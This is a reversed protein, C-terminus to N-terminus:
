GVFWASHSTLAEALNLETQLYLTYVGKGYLKRARSLNFQIQFKDSTQVWNKATITLGKPSIYGPPVVMGVFTGITYSGNYPQKELQVSTLNTPAEDFFISLLRISFGTDTFTGEMVVDNNGSVNLTTWEIYDNEFDEVFYVNNTDYALGISVKNHAPNLINDRHGWNCMSDNYMMQWELTRLTEKVDFVGNSYYWAVNETVSGRGGDETYRMYPKYGRTDWHSFFNQKLMNEAHKQGSSVESLSVNALNNQMRDGNILTLAYEILEEHTYSESLNSKFLEQFLLSISQTNVLVVGLFIVILCAATLTKFSAQARPAEDKEGTKM